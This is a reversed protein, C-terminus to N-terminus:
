TTDTKPFTVRLEVSEVLSLSAHSEGEPSNAKPNRWSVPVERKMTAMHYLLIGSLVMTQLALFVSSSLRASAGVPDCTRSM